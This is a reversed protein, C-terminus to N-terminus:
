AKEEEKVPVTNRKWWSSEFLLGSFRRRKEEREEEREAEIEGLCKPCLGISEDAVLPRGCRKCLPSTGKLWRMVTTPHIGMERGIQEYNRGQAYLARAKQFDKTSYRKPM